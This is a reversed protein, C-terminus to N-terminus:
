HMWLTLHSQTKLLSSKLATEIQERIIFLDANINTVNISTGDAFIIQQLM